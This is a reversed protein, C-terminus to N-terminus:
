KSRWRSRLCRIQVTKDWQSSKDCFPIAASVQIIKFEAETKTILNCLELTNEQKSGKACINNYITM